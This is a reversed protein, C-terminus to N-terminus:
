LVEKILFHDDLPMFGARRYLRRRTENLPYCIVKKFGAQEALQLISSTYAAIVGKPKYAYVWEICLVQEGQLTRTSVIVDAEHGFLFVSCLGQEIRHEVCRLHALYWTAGPVTALQRKHEVWWLPVVNHKLLQIRM